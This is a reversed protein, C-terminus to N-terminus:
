PTFANPASSDSVPETPEAPPQVIHAQLDPSIVPQDQVPAVPAPQDPQAPPPVIPAAVMPVVVPTTMPARVPVLVPAAPAVQPAPAAQTPAVPAAAVPAPATVPAVPAAAVPAPAAVPAAVPAEAAVPAVGGANLVSTFVDRIQQPQFPKALFANVRLDKAKAVMEDQSVSTVIIVKAEPNIQRIEELAVLGNKVPMIIDLFVVDFRYQKYLEIAVDGNEAEMFEIGPVEKLATKLITRMFASDDTLLVKSM